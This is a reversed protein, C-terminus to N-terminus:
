SQYESQFQKFRENLDPAAEAIRDYQKFVVNEELDDNAIPLEPRTREPHTANENAMGLNFAEAYTTQVDERLLFDIFEEAQTRNSTGRAVQYHDVYGVTREPVSVGLNTEETEAAKAVTYAFFYQGADAIGQSIATWMDAAGNYFKSIPMEGMTEFIADVDRADEAYLEEAMPAEDAVIAAMIVSNLFYAGPLAVNEASENTVLDSWSEPEFGVADADYAYGMIGYAVPVGDDSEINATLTPKISDANPVNEYRISEWLGDQKGLYHDRASGVTLDFPPDDAPSQRVQGLINEWNGVVEIENGTEEEYLPKITERFVSLNTGSWTSVTLPGGGGVCGALALAGTAAGTALFGRRSTRGTEGRGVGDTVADVQSSQEDDAGREGDRSEGDQNEGDRNM